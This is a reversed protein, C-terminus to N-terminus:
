LTSLCPMCLTATMCRIFPASREQWVMMAWATATTTRSSGRRATWSQSQARTAPTRACGSLSGIVVAAYEGQTVYHFGLDREPARGVLLAAPRREEQRRRVEAVVQEILRENM